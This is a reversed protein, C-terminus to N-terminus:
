AHKSCILPIYCIVPCTIHGNLCEYCSLNHTCFMGPYWGCNTKSFIFPAFPLSSSFFRLLVKTSFANLKKPWYLMKLKLTAQLKTVQIAKHWLAMVPKNYLPLSLLQWPNHLQLPPWALLSSATAHRHACAIVM